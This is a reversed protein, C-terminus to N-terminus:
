KCKSPIDNDPKNEVDPKSDIIDDVSKKQVLEPTKYEPSPVEKKSVSQKTNTTNDGSTFNKKDLFSSIFGDDLESNNVFQAEFSQETSSEENFGETSFGEQNDVEVLTEENGEAAEETNTNTAGVEVKTPTDSSTDLGSLFDAAGRSTTEKEVVEKSVVTKKAFDKTGEDINKRFMKMDKKGYIRSIEEDIAKTDDGKKHELLLDVLKSIGKDTEQKLAITYAQKLINNIEYTREDSDTGYLENMHTLGEGYMQVVDRGRGITRILNGSGDIIEIKSSAFTRKLLSQQFDTRNEDNIINTIIDENVFKASIFDDNEKLDRITNPMDLMADNADLKGNFGRENNNFSNYYTVSLNKNSGHIEFKGDGIHKLLAAKTVLRGNQNVTLNMVIHGSKVGDVVMRAIESPIYEDYYYEENNLRDYLNEKAEDVKFQIHGKSKLSRLILTNFTPKSAKVNMDIGDLVVFQQLTNYKFTQDLLRNNLTYLHKHNNNNYQQIFDDVSIETNNSNAELAEYFSDPIVRNLNHSERSFNAYIGLMYAVDRPTFAKFGGKGDPIKILETTNDELLEQFADMMVGDETMDYPVKVEFKGSKKSVNLAIANLLRNERWMPHSHRNMVIMYGLGRLKAPEFGEVIGTGIGVNANKYDANYDFVLQINGDLGKSSNAFLRSRKYRNYEELINNVHNEVEHFKPNTKLTEFAKAMLTEYEPYMNRYMDRMARLNTLLKVGESTNPVANDLIDNAIDFMNDLHGNGNYEGILGIFGSSYSQIIQYLKKAYEGPNQPPEHTKNTSSGAAIIAENTYHASLSKIMIATNILEDDIPKGDVETEGKVIALLNDPTLLSEMGTSNYLEYLSRLVKNKKYEFDTDSRLRLEKENRIIIGGEDDNAINEQIILKLAEDPNNDVDVLFGGIEQEGGERQLAKLKREAKLEIEIQKILGYIDPFEVRAMKDALRKMVPSAMMLAPMNYENGDKGKMNLYGSWAKGDKDIFHKGFGIHILGAYLPITQPTANITGMVNNKANDVAENQMMSTMDSKSVSGQAQSDPRFGDEDFVLPNLKIPKGKKRMARNLMANLVNTFSFYAVGAKGSSASVAKEAQHQKSLFSVGSKSDNERLVSITHAMPTSALPKVIKKQVAPDTNTYISRTVDTILNQMIALRTKGKTNTIDEEKIIKNTEKNVEYNYLYIYEKDGDNDSGKQAIISSPLVVSNGMEQPLFGVIKYASGSNLNSFPLRVGAGQLLREDIVGEKLVLAGTKKDRYSYKDSTLDIVVVNGHKDKTTFHSPILIEAPHFKGDADVYADMLPGPRKGETYVINSKDHDSVSELGVSSMSVLSLGNTKVTALHNKIFAHAISQIKPNTSNILNKATSNRIVSILPNGPSSIELTEAIREPLNEWNKGMMDELNKKNDDIINETAYSFLRELDQVTLNNKDKIAFNPNAQNYEDIVSQDTEISYTVGAEAAEDFMITSLQTALVIDHNEEGSIVDEQMHNPFRQQQGWYSRRMDLSAVKLRQRLISGESKKLDGSNVGEYIEDLTLPEQVTDAKMTSVYGARVPLGTDEEYAEMLVRLSDIKSGATFQPLLPVASSKVYNFAIHVIRGDADKVSESGAGLPKVVNAITSYQEQFFSVEEKSLKGGKSLKRYIVDLKQHQTKTIAGSNAIFNYAEKWTVYEQADTKTIELHNSLQPYKKALAGAKGNDYNQELEKIIDRDQKSLNIGFVKALYEINNSIGVEDKLVIQKYKQNESNPMKNTTGIAGGWRKFANDTAEYVLKNFNISGDANKAKNVNSFMAIDGLFLQHITNNNLMSNIAYKSLELKIKNETNFMWAEEEATRSGEKKPDTEDHAALSNLKNYKEDLGLDKLILSKIGGMPNARSRINISDSLLYSVENNIEDELIQTVQDSFEEYLQNYVDQETANEDFQMLKDLISVGNADKMQNFKVNNYFYKSGEKMAKRNIGKSRSFAIIRKLESGFINRKVTELVNNVGNFYFGNVAFGISSDKIVLTPATFVPAKNKDSMVPFAMSRMKVEGHTSSTFTKGNHPMDSLYLSLHAYEIKSKHKENIRRKSTKDDEFAQSHMHDVRTLNRVEPIDEFVELLMNNSLLPVGLLVRPNSKSGDLRDTVMSASSYNNSGKDGLKASGKSGYPNSKYHLSYLRQIETNIFKRAKSLNDSDHEDDEKGYYESFVSVLAANNLNTNLYMFGTLVRVKKLALQQVKNKLDDPLTRYDIENVPVPVTNGENDKKTINLSLLIENNFFEEIASDSVDIGLDKLIERIGNTNFPRTSNSPTNNFVHYKQGFKKIIEPSGNKKYISRILVKLRTVKNSDTMNSSLINDIQWFDQRSLSFLRPHFDNNSEKNSKDDTTDQNPNYGLFKLITKITSLKIDIKHKLIISALLNEESAYTNNNNGKDIDAKALDMYVNSGSLRARMKTMFLSVQKHDPRDNGGTFFNTFIDHVYKGANRLSTQVGGYTDADKANGDRDITIARDVRVGSFKMIVKNREHDPLKKLASILDTAVRSRQLNSLTQILDGFTKIGGSNNEIATYFMSVVDSYKYHVPYGFPDKYSNGSPDTAEVTSMFRLSFSDQHDKFSPSDDYSNEKANLKRQQNVVKRIYNPNSMQDIRQLLAEGAEIVKPDDSKKISKEIQERHKGIVEVIKDELKKKGYNGFEPNEIAILVDNVVLRNIFDSKIDYNDIHNLVEQPSYNGKTNVITKRAVRLTGDRSEEAIVNHNSKNESVIKSPKSQLEKTDSMLTKVNAIKDDLAEVQNGSFINKSKADELFGLLKNLDVSNLDVDVNHTPNFFTINTGNHQITHYKTHAVGKLYDKYGIPKGLLLSMIGDASNDNMMNDLVAPSLTNPEIQSTFDGGYSGQSSKFVIKKDKNLYIKYSGNDNSGKLSVFKSIANLAGSPKSIDVRFSKKIFQQLKIDDSTEKGDKFRQHAQIISSVAKNTNENAKFSLPMEVIRGDQLVRRHRYDGGVDEKNVLGKEPIPTDKTVFEVDYGTPTADAVPFEKNNYHLTNEDLTAKDYSQGMKFSNGSLSSFHVARLYLAEINEVANVSNGNPKVPTVDFGEGKSNDLTINSDIVEDLTKATTVPKGKRTAKAKMKTGKGGYGTYYGEKGTVDHNLLVRDQKNHDKTPNKANFEKKNNVKKDYNTKGLSQENSYPVSESAKVALMNDVDKLSGVLKNIHMFEEDSSSDANAIRDMLNDLMNLVQEKKDIESSNVSDKLRGVRIMMIKYQSSYDSKQEDPKRKFEKEEQELIIQEEEFEDETKDPQTTPEANTKYGSVVPEIDIGFLHNAIDNFIRSDYELGINNNNHIMNAVDQVSITRGLRYELRTKIDLFGRLVRKYAIVADRYNKLKTAHDVVSAIFKNNFYVVDASISTANNASYARDGKQINYQMVNLQALMDQIVPYDQFGTQRVLDKLNNIDQQTEVEGMKHAMLGFVYEVDIEQPISKITDEVLGELQRTHHELYRIADIVHSSSKEDEHQIFPFREKVYAIAEDYKDEIENDRLQRLQQRSEHLKKNLLLAKTAKKSLDIAVLRNYGQNRLAAYKEKFISATEHMKKFEYSQEQHVIQLALNAETNGTNDKFESNAQENFVKLVGDFGEHAQEETGTSLVLGLTNLDKDIQDEHSSLDIESRVKISENRYDLVDQEKKILEGRKPEPEVYILKDDEQRGKGDEEPPPLKKQSPPLQKLDPDPEQNDEPEEDPSVEPQADQSVEPEPEPEEEGEKRKRRNIVEEEEENIIRKKKRNIIEEEEENIVRRKKKNGAPDDPNENDDDNPKNNDDTPKNSDDQPPKNNNNDNPNEQNPSPPKVEQKAPNNPNSGEKPLITPDVGEKNVSQKRVANDVNDSNEDFKALPNIPTGQPQSQSPTPRNNNSHGGGSFAGMAVGMIGGSVFSNIINDWNMFTQIGADWKKDRKVTESIFEETGEELAEKSFNEVGKLLFNRAAGGVSAAMKRTGRTAMVLRNGTWRGIARSLGRDVMNGLMMSPLIQNNFNSSFVQDAVERAYSENGYQALVDEYVQKASDRANMSATQAGWLASNLVTSAARALQSARLVGALAGGIGTSALLSYALTNTAVIGLTEGFSGLTGALFSANFGMEDRGFIQLNDQKWKEIDDLWSEVIGDNTFGKGTAGYRVADALSTVAKVAGTVLGISAEIGGMKFKNGTSQSMSALKEFYQNDAWQLSRDVDTWSSIHNLNYEKNETVASAQEEYATRNAFPNNATPNDFIEGLKYNSGSNSQDFISNSDTADFINDENQTDM